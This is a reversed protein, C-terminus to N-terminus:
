RMLVGRDRLGRPPHFRVGFRIRRVILVVLMLRPCRTSPSRAIIRSTPPCRRVAPMAANAPQVRANAVLVALTILFV